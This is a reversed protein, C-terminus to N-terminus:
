TEFRYGSGGCHPCDSYGNRISSGCDCKKCGVSRFFQLLGNYFYDMTQAKFYTFDNGNGLKFAGLDLIKKMIDLNTLYMGKVLAMKEVM